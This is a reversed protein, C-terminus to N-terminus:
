IPWHARSGSRTQWLAFSRSRSSARAQRTMFVGALVDEQLCLLSAIELKGHDLVGQEITVALLTITDKAAPINGEMLFDLATMVQFRLQGWERLRGYGGFRELYRTGCIGPAMMQDPTM